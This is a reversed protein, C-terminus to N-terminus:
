EEDATLLGDFADTEADAATDVFVDDARWGTLGAALTDDTEYAAVVDEDATDFVDFREFLFDFDREPLVAVSAFGTLRFEAVAAWSSVTGNIPSDRAFAIMAYRLACPANLFIFPRSATLPKPLFIIAM